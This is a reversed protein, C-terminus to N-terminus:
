DIVWAADDVSKASEPWFFDRVDRVIMAPGDRMVSLRDEEETSTYKDRLEGFDDTVEIEVPVLRNMDRAEYAWVAKAVTMGAILDQQVFPRQKLPFNDTDMADQLAASAVRGSQRRGLIEELPEGPMPKPTVEWKPKPDLITSLMGEVVQLIYPTTLNS